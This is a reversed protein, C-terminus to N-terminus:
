TDSRAVAICTFSTGSAPAGFVNFGTLASIVGNVGVLNAEVGNLRTTLGGVTSANAKQFALHALSATLDAIAGSNDAVPRAPM